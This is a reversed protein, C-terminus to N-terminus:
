KEIIVIGEVNEKIDALVKEIAENRLTETIDNAEASILCCTLDSARIYVEVELVEKNQGKFIPLVMKFSSPLNSEVAQDILARKNGRNDDSAEIQKDIKAKFNKLTVVLNMAADKNEFFTRNMKILDAMEFPTLYEGSNIGFRKYAPHFELRGTISTQYHDNEGIILQISMEERDVIIYCHEIPIQTKLESLLCPETAVGEIKLLRNKIWQLPSDLVGNITVKLPEKIEQAKGERIILEHKDNTLAFNTEQKM